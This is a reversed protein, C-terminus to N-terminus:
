HQGTIRTGPKLHYENGCYPCKAQGTHAIELFVRPHYCWVPTSKNPCHLPLDQATIEFSPPLQRM